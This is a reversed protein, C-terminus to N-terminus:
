LSEGNQDIWAAAEKATLVGLSVDGYYGNDLGIAGFTGNAIVVVVIESDHYIRCKPLWEGRPFDDLDIAQLRM